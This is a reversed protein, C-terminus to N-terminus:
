FKAKVEEYNEEDPVLGALIEQMNSRLKKQFVFYSMCKHIEFVLM